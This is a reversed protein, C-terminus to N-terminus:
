EPFAEWSDPEPLWIWGEKAVLDSDLEPPPATCRKRVSSAAVLACLLADLCHHWRVCAAAQETDLHLWGPSTLHALLAERAPASHKYKDAIKAMEWVALAAAPYVERIPGHVRDVPDGMRALLDAARWSTVGLMSASVSLPQKGCEHRVWLDTQRLRLRESTMADWGETWEGSRQWESVAEVFPVPWGFPADLGTLTAEDAMEALADQGVGRILTECRAGDGNWELVCAATHTDQAGLDIGLVQMPALRDTGAPVEM